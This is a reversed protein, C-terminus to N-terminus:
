TGNALRPIGSNLAILLDLAEAERVEGVVLRDPRMRLTEKILRRLSVEGTGELSDGRCQM